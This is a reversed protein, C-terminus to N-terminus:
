KLAAVPKKAVHMSVRPGHHEGIGCPVHPLDAQVLAVQAKMQDKVADMLAAEAKANLVMEGRGRAMEQATKLAQYHQHVERFVKRVKQRVEDETQSLKTEAM